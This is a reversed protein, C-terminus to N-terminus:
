GDEENTDSMGWRDVRRCLRKVYVDGPTLCLALGMRTAPNAARLRRRRGRNGLPCNIVTCMSESKTVASDASGNCCHCCRAIMRQCISMQMQKCLGDCIHRPGSVARLARVQGGDVLFLQDVAGTGPHACISVCFSSV